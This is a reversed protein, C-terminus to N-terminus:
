FRVFSQCLFLPPVARRERHDLGCREDSSFEYGGFTEIRGWLGHQFDVLHRGSAQKYSWKVICSGENEDYEQTTYHKGDAMSRIGRVYETRFTGSAWIAENSFNAEQGQGQNPSLFFAAMM